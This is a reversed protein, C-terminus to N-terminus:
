DKNDILYKAYNDTWAHETKGCYLCHYTIYGGNPYVREDVTHALSDSKRFKNGKTIIYAPAVEEEGYLHMTWVGYRAFTLFARFICGIYKILSFKRSNKEM